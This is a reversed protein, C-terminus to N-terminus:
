NGRKWSEDTPQSLDAEEMENCQKADEEFNTGARHKMWEEESRNSHPLFICGGLHTKTANKIYPRYKRPPTKSAVQRHM